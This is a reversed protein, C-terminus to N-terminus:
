RSFRDSLWAGLMQSFVGSPRMTQRGRERQVALNYEEAMVRGVLRDGSIMGNNQQQEDFGFPDNGFM